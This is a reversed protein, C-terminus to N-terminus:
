RARTGLKVRGERSVIVTDAASGRAFIISVNAGGLGLGDPYFAMSDRTATMTVGHEAVVARMLLTDGRSVVLVRGGKADLSIWTRRGLAIAQARATFFAMMTERAAGRTEIRDLTRKFAPLVFGSILAVLAIVVVLEPLTTASRQSVDAHPAYHAM